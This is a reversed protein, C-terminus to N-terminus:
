EATARETDREEIWIQGDYQIDEATVMAPDYDAPMSILHRGPVIQTGVVDDDTLTIIALRTSTM